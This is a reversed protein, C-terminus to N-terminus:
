FVHDQSVIVTPIRYHYIWLLRELNFKELSSTMHYGWTTASVPRYLSLARVMPYALMIYFGCSAVVFAVFPLLMVFGDFVHFGVVLSYIRLAWQMYANKTLLVAYHLYAAAGADSILKDIVYRFRPDDHEVYTSGRHGNLPPHDSGDKAFQRDCGDSRPM